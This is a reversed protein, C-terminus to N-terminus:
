STGARQDAMLRLDRWGSDPTWERIVRPADREPCSLAPHDLRGLQELEKHIEWRRPSVRYSQLSLQKDLLVTWEDLSDRVIIELTDRPTVSTYAQAHPSGAVTIETSPALLIRRPKGTPCEACTYAAHGESPLTSPPDGDAIFVVTATRHRISAGAVVLRPGDPGELHSLAHIRGDQAFQIEAHGEATVSLVFTAWWTHHAFALWLRKPASGPSVEMDRLQWPASFARDGFTLTQDPMVTWKLVGARTFCYLADSMTPRTGDVTSRVPVLLETEGDGDVDVQQIATKAGGERTVHGVDRDFMHTWVVSGEASLGELARGILRFQVADAQSPQISGAVLGVVLIAVAGFPALAALAWRRRNAGAAVPPEPTTDASPPEPVARAKWEDIELPDAYVIQGTPTRLRRVPLAEDTEARQASRVSKGAYASIEKWGNLM